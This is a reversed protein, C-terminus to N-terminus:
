HAQIHVSLQAYHSKGLVEGLEYNKKREHSEPQQVGGHVITDLKDRFGM